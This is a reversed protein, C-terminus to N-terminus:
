SSHEQAATTSAQNFDKSGWLISNLISYPSSDEHVSVSDSLSAPTLISSADLKVSNDDGASAVGDMKGGLAAEFLFRRSHTEQINLKRLAVVGRQVPASLESPSIETTVWALRDLLEGLLGRVRDSRLHEGLIGLLLASSLGRHLASWSQRSYATIGDIGLWGEVSNALSDICLQKYTKAVEPDHTSPSIAARCAESMAYSSHLKLGFYELRERPTTCKDEDRLYERADRMVNEISERHQGIKNYLERKSLRASRDKCIDSLIVSLKYMSDHYPEVPGFQSPMPMTNIEASASSSARDYTISLLSDQWMIGWWVKSRPFIVDASISPPCARHLGLSQALRITLGLMAWATGANMNNILVNEIVLLSQIDELNAQSLFNVFRLCEVSCCVYVQSTLEREKRAMSSCQAGLGLVAFLMGLWHYSRGYISHETVGEDTDTNAARTILFMTLEEELAQPDVISPFILYGTECYCRFLSLLHTDNPLVKALERAREVSGHPLGFLDVFPYTSSENDLGFMPLVSKGMMERVYPRDAEGQSLAYLLAPISGGGVHVIEGADNRTHMGHIDIHRRPQLREAAATAAEQVLSQDLQTEAQRESANRSIEHRLDALSKELNNLKQFLLDLEARGVTVYSGASGDEQKFGPGAGDHDVNQRKSPPNYNCLEPHERDRCTQCPRSLDCKVKRQRCPYCAKHERAKRKRRLFEDVEAQPPQSLTETSGAVGDDGVGGQPVLQQQQQQQHHNNHQQLAALHEPYPHLGMQAIQPDM